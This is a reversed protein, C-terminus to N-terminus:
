EVFLKVDVTSPQGSISVIVDVEGPTVGEPVIANIQYLSAFGPALGAFGVPAPLGGVTM